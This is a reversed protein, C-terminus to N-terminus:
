LTELNLNKNQFQNIKNLMEDNCKTKADNVINLEKLDDGFYIDLKKDNPFQSWKAIDKETICGKIEIYVNYESLYFDPHYYHWENQFFYKFKDKPREWKIHRMNLYEAFALEWKGHLIVNNCKYHHIKGLSSHWNNNEVKEKVTNSVNKSLNKLREDTEKTLGDCWSKVKGSKYSEKISEGNKRVREDTEKTLGKNWAHKKNKNYSTIPSDIRNPNLKCFREHNKVGFKKCIKGCYKCKYIEM